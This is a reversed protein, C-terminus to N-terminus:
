AALGLTVLALSIPVVKIGGDLCDGILASPDADVVSAIGLSSGGATGDLKLLSVIAIQPELLDFTFAVGAVTLTGTGRGVGGICSLANSVAHASYTSTADHLPRPGSPGNLVGSCTGTAAATASGTASALTLPPEFADTGRLSCSGTFSVKSAANASPSEAVQAAVACIVAVASAIKRVQM